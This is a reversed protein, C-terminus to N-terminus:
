QGISLITSLPPSPSGPPKESAGIIRMSWGGSARTGNPRCSPRSALTTSRCPRDTGRLDALRDAWTARPADIDAATRGCGRDLPAGFRRGASLPRRDRSRPRVTGRCSARAPVLRLGHRHAPRPRVRRNKQFLDRRVMMTPHNMAPFGLRISAAYDPDGAIRHLPRGSADECILDGFVGDADGRDLRRAARAVQRPAIRDDANVFMLYVGSARAIGKNFADAIGRDPESVTSFVRHQWRALIAATGDMSAGDIVIHEIARGRQAAVSELTAELTGAANRCATVISILPM